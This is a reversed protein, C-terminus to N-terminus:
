AAGGDATRRGRLPATLGGARGAAGGGGAGGASSAGGPGYCPGAGRATADRYREGLTREDDRSRAPPDLAGAGCRATAPQALGPRPGGTRARLYVLQGDM